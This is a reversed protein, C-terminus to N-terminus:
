FSVFSSSPSREKVRGGNRFTALTKIQSYYSKANTKVTLSCVGELKEPTEWRVASGWSLGGLPM